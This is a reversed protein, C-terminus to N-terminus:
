AVAYSMAGTLAGRKAAVPNRGSPAPVEIAAVEDFVRDSSAENVDSAQEEEKLWHSNRSVLRLWLRYQPQLGSSATLVVDEATQALRCGKDYAQARENNAFDSLLAYLRGDVSMGSRLRGEWYFDFINIQNESLLTPLAM